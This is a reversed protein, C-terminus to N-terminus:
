ENKKIKKEKKKRKGVSAEATATAALKERARLAAADQASKKKEKGKKKKVPSSNGSSSSDSSSPLATKAKELAKLRKIAVVLQQEPTAPQEKPKAADRAATSHRLPPSAGQARNKFIIKRSEHRQLANDLEDDGDNGLDIIGDALDPVPEHKLRPVWGHFGNKEACKATHNRIGQKGCRKECYSCLVKDGAKSRTTALAGASM